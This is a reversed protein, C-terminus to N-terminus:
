KQKAYRLGTKKSGYPLEKIPRKSLGTRCKPGKHRLGHTKKAQKAQKSGRVSEAECVDDGGRQIARVGKRAAEFVKDGKL